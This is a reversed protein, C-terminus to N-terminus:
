DRTPGNLMPYVERLSDYLRVAEAMADAPTEIGATDGTRVSVELQTEGKANRTLAVHSSGGGTKTIAALLGRLIEARSISRSPIGAADLAGSDFAARLEERLLEVQRAADEGIV